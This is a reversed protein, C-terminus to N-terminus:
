RAWRLSREESRERRTIGDPLNNMVEGRQDDFWFLGQPSRQGRL